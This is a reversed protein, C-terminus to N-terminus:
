IEISNLGALGLTFIGLGVFVEISAQLRGLVSRVIAVGMALAIANLVLKPMKRREQADILKQKGRM